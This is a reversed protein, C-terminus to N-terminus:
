GAEREADQKPARQLPENDDLYQQLALRMIASPRAATRGAHRILRGRLAKPMRVTLVTDTGESM